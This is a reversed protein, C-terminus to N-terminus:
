ASRKLSKGGPFLHGQGVGLGVDPLDRDSFRRAYTETVVCLIFDAETLQRTMWTPWDEDTDKFFDLRPECGDRSLSAHLGRVRAEHAPSDHSFSIFVKSM